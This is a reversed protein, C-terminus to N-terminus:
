DTISHREKQEKRFQWPPICFQDKWLGDARLRACEELKVLDEDKRSKPYVWAFGKQILLRNICKGSSLYAYGLERGYKDKGGAIVKVKKHLCVRRLYDKSELGFPQSIEPSDIDALRVKILASRSEIKITDGDVVEAVKAQGSAHNGVSFILAFPLVTGFFTQM